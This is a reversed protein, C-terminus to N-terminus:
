HRAPKDILQLIADAQYIRNRAAGTIERLIGLQELKEVYRQTSRFSIGLAAQMQRISLVPQAFVVELARLLRGAAREKQVQEIYNTRLSQFRRIRASADLSELSIGQIFFRLWGEWDGRQSVALLRDYYVNRYAELYASLYLLPQPLLGWACLILIVLLRGIRGNGDLFPHIAEFQYHIVAVRVLAPLDSPAHIFAELSGLAEHMEAVPPPVFPATELTSNAPGIWNQSRRFEGPTLHEGRVGEMLIKHLERILRLSIPLSDLRKLGYNMARVYNYVERTDAPVSIPESEGGQAAEYRYLDALSAHTGEIRSSLVAERRVFPQAFQEPSPLTEGLTSLQGLNREAEGLASILSSTWALNPPLPSPVFAWYGSLTKITQGNRFDKPNM